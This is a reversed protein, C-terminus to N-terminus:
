ILTNPGGKIQLKLHRVEEPFVERYKMLDMYLDYEGPLDLKGMNRCCEKLRVIDRVEKATYTREGEM